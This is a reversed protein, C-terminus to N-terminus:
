YFQSEKCTLINGDFIGIQTFGDAHVLTGRGNALGERWFGEFSTGNDWTMKGFGHRKNM